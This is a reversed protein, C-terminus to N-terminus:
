WDAGTLAGSLGFTAKLPGRARKLAVNTIKASSGAKLGTYPNAIFRLPKLGPPTPDLAFRRSAQAYEESRGVM